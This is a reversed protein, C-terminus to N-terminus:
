VVLIRVLRRVNLTGSDGQDPGPAVATTRDYGVRMGSPVGPSASPGFRRGPHEGRPKTGVPCVVTGGHGARNGPRSWRLGRHYGFRGRPHGPRSTTGTVCGCSTGTRDPRPGRRSGCPLDEDAAAHTASTPVVLTTSCCSTWWTRDHGVPKRRTRCLNNWGPGGAHFEAVGDASAADPAVASSGGFRKHSRWRSLENDRGGAIMRRVRFRVRPLRM